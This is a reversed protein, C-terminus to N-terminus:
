CSGHIHMHGPRDVWLWKFSATYYPRVALRSMHMCCCLQLLNCALGLLDHVTDLTQVLM